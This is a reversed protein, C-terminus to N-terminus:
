WEEEDYDNERYATKFCQQCIDEAVSIWSDRELTDDCQDSMTLYTESIHNLIEISAVFIAEGKSLKVTVKKKPNHKKSM